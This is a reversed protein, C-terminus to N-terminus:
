SNLHKPSVELAAIDDGHAATSSDKAENEEIRAKLEQMENELSSVKLRLERNENKLEYRAVAGALLLAESHKTM